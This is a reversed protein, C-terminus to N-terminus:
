GENPRWQFGVWEGGNAAVWDKYVTSEVKGGRPGTRYTRKTGNFCNSHNRM